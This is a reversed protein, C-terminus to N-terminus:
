VFSGLDEWAITAMGLVEEPALENPDDKVFAKPKLFLNGATQYKLYIRGGKRLAVSIVFAGDEGVEGVLFDELAMLRREGLRGFDPTVLARSMLDDDETNLLFDSIDIKLRGKNEEKKEKSQTQM